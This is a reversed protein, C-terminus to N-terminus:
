ARITRGSKKKKTTPERKFEVQFSDVLYTPLPVREFYSELAKEFAPGKAGTLGARMVFAGVLRKYAPPVNEVSADGGSLLMLAVFDQLTEASFLPLGEGNKEDRMKELWSALDLGM